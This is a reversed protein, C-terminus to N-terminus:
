ADSSEAEPKPDNRAMLKAHAQRRERQQRKRNKEFEAGKRRRTNRETKRAHRSQGERKAM